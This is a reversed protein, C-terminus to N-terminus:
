LVGNSGDHVVRIKTKEDVVGLFGMCLREGYRKRAEEDTVEEMWGAAAEERFMKELQSEFGVISKYNDRDREDEEPPEELSWKTKKEFILPTRPMPVDVGLTVGGALDEIFSADPDGLAWLVAGIIGLGFCQEAVDGVSDPIGFFDM